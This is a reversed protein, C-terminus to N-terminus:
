CWYPRLSECKSTAQSRLCQFLWNFGKSALNKKNKGVQLQTGSGRNVVKLPYFNIVNSLKAGFMQLDQYKFMWQM